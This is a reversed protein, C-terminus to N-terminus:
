SFKNSASGCWLVNFVKVHINNALILYKSIEQPFLNYHFPCVMFMGDIFKSSDMVTM